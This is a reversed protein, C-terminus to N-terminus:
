TFISVGDARGRSVVGPMRAASRRAEFGVTERVVYLPMPHEPPQAPPRLAEALAAAVLLQVGFLGVFLAAVSLVGPPALGMPWLALALLGYAAAVVSVAAGSRALMRVARRPSALLAELFERWVPAARTPLGQAPPEEPVPSRVTAQRFGIWREMDPRLCGASRAARLADVVKRDLLCTHPTDAEGAQRGHEAPKPGSPWVVEFGERWSAIMAPILQDPQRLDPGVVLVAKGSAFDQGAARAALPGFRRSLEVIRVRRDLGALHRLTRDAWEAAGDMVFIVEYPEGSQLAAQTLEEYLRTLAGEKHCVRMVFSFTTDADKAEVAATERAGVPSTLLKKGFEGGPQPLGM